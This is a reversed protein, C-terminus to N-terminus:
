YRVMMAGAVVGSVMRRRPLGGVSRLRRMPDATGFRPHRGPRKKSAAAVAGTVVSTLGAPVHVLLLVVFPVSLQRAGPVFLGVLDAVAPM